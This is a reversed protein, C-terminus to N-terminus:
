GSWLSSADAFVSVCPHGDAVRIHPVAARDEPISILAASRTGYRETHVCAALVAPDVGDPLGTTDTPIGHDMLVTRLNQLTAGGTANATGLRELLARVNRTKPSPVDIPNNELVHIGPGLETAAPRAGATMDVFFLSTRDGVLLWAPNYDDPRFEGVFADVAHRADGHGTLALPLEGRSRKSANHGDPAPRNTLGAVVGYENVALWTGGALEDRGGIIRPGEAKLVTVATAPRDRREDRNAALVLPVAPDLRSAVVLLCM